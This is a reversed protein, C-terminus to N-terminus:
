RAVPPQSKWYLTVSIGPAVLLHSDLPTTILTPMVKGALNADVDFTMLHADVVADAMTLGYWGLTLIFNYDRSRRYFDRGRRLQEISLRSLLPDPSITNENGDAALALADRFRAFRVQNFDILSAFIVFGGVALPVKWYRKNYVQGLGPMTAALLATKTPAPLEKRSLGAKEVITQAVRVSDQTRDNQGQVPVNVLLGSLFLVAALAFDYPRM